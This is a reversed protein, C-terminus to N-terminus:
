PEAVAAVPQIKLFLIEHFENGSFIRTLQNSPFNGGMKIINIM